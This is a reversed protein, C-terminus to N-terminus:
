QCLVNTSIDYRDEAIEAIFLLVIVLSGGGAFGAMIGSIYMETANTAIIYLGWSGQLKALMLINLNYLDCTNKPVNRLLFWIM